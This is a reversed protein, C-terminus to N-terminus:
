QFDKEINDAQTLTEAARRHLTLSLEPMGVREALQARYTYFAAQNRLELEM